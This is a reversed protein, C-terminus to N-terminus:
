HRAGDRPHEGVTDRVTRTSDRARGAASQALTERMAARVLYAPTPGTGLAPAPAIRQSGTAARPIANDVDYAGRSRASALVEFASDVPASAVLLIASAGRRAFRALTGNVAADAYRSAFTYSNARITGPEPALLPTAVIRGRIDATTDTADPIWLVGGSAEAPVVNLPILDHFLTMAQGGISARSSTLSVRTRTIDFWQFWTGDEGMPKLGHAPVAGGDM